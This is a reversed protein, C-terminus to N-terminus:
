LKTDNQLLSLMKKSRDKLVFSPIGISITWKPLTDKVFTLAGTASGEQAVVGPMVITGVGLQVFRKLVVKGVIVKRYEQAVQPGVLSFGTFDDSESYISVRSSLGSYDDIEIGSKGFLSCHTGIHVNSKIVISGTLVSFDDIRSNDGISTSEPNIIRAFRSILVNKGIHAFEVKSLEHETYFSTGFSM